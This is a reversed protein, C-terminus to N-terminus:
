RHSRSGHGSRWEEITEADAGGIAPARNVVHTIYPISTGLTTITGTGVNGRSGGGVRYSLVGPAMPHIAGRQAISGDPHRIRPGFCVTGSLADVTVHRDDPRSDGFHPM